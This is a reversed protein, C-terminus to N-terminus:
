MGASPTFLKDLLGADKLKDLLHRIRAGYKAVIDKWGIKEAAALQAVCHNVMNVLFKMNSGGVSPVWAKATLADFLELTAMAEEATMKEPINTVAEQYIRNRESVTAMASRQLVEVQSAWLKSSAPVKNFHAPAPTTTTTTGHTAQIMTSDHMTKRVKKVLVKNQNATLIDRMVQTFVPYQAHRSCIFRCVKDQTSMLVGLKEKSLLPLFFAMMEDTEMIFRISSNYNNENSLFLRSAPVDKTRLLEEVRKSAPGSQLTQQLKMVNCTVPLIDRIDGKKQHMQLAYELRRPSVKDKEEQPLDEWWSIAGRAIEIGFEKEFWSMSPKYPVAVTVQFRDMQAPDIPEVDYIGDDDPNIAAWIVKLNPFPKGNISKFQLLEMVANRTKKHSRNFEDFFVAEVLGYAFQRPRVLDLYTTGQAPTQEIYTIIADAQTGSLNWNKDIWALAVERGIQLLSRIINFAEPQLDDTKEKPVGVLDVWPDLTAASFYLFTEGLALGNREFCQKVMHTNHTVTFDGLLFRGDGDLTFGHYDGEGMPVIEKIDTYLFDKRHVKGHKTFRCPVEDIDGSITIRNRSAYAALGLSRALFLIDSTLRTNKQIISLCNDSLKGDSNILGGLLMLRDVRSATLYEVPIHKNDFLGHKELLLRFANPKMMEDWEKSSIHDIEPDGLWAGLMYPSGVPPKGSFEVGCRVLLAQHRFTASKVLFENLPIDFLNDDGAMKLTLVHVSNCIFPDGKTPVIKYMQDRGSTTGQVTRPLSDPGMVQDGNAIQEVPKVSGDFMLVPTGTALCKGVGHKGVFMVNQAAQFWFDLKDDRIM